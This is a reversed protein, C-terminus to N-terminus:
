FYGSNVRLSLKDIWRKRMLTLQFNSGQQKIGINKLTSLSTLVFSAVDFIRLWFKSLINKKSGFESATVVNLINIIPDNQMNSNVQGAIINKFGVKPEPIKVSGIVDVIEQATLIGDGDDDCRVYFGRISQEDLQIHHITPFGFGFHAM